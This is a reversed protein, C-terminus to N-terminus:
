KNSAEVLDAPVAFPTRIAGDRRGQPNSIAADSKQCPNRFGGDPGGVTAKVLTFRILPM